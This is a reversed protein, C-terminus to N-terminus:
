GCANTGVSGLGSTLCGRPPYVELTWWTERGIPVTVRGGPPQSLLSEVADDNGVHSVQSGTDAATIVMCPAAEASLALSLPSETVGLNDSLHTPKTVKRRNKRENNEERAIRVKERAEAKDEGEKKRSKSQCQVSCFMDLENDDHVLRNEQACLNHVFQGCKSYCPHDPVLGVNTCGEIGCKGPVSVVTSVPVPVAKYGEEKRSKSQCQVSCFMNLENDDHVLRNEQACLNHVFQGCRSYCPHDPVLGVNTCGKIGCKEPVSLSGPAKAAAGVVASVYFGRM